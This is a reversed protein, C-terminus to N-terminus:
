EEEPASANQPDLTKENGDKDVLKAVTQEADNLKKELERSLKVGAQFENLADELPVNGSELKNVIEQLENLQEEFNNKKTAM